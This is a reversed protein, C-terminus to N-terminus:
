RNLSISFFKLIFGGKTRQFQLYFRLLQFQESEIGETNATMQYTKSHREREGNFCIFLRLRINMILKFKSELWGNEM